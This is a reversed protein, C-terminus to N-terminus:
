KTIQKKFCVAKYDSSNFTSSTLLLFDCARLNTKRLYICPVSWKNEWFYSCPASWKNERQYICPVPWKYERQYNCPVSMQKGFIFVSVMQKGSIFLHRQGNTKGSEFVDRQRNKECLYICQASWKNELYLYKASVMQKGLTLYM